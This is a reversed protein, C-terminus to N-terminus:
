SFESYAAGLSLMWFDLIQFSISYRIKGTYFGLCVHDVRLMFPKLSVQGSVTFIIKLELLTKQTHELEKNM